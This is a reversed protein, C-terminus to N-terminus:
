PTARECAIWTALQEREAATPRKCASCEDPPMVANKARPGAGALADIEDAAALIGPLTDFNDDSPADHRDGGELTSAHCGTCYTMMFQRGFTEYTPAPEVSSSCTAGTPTGDSAGCAVLFILLFSRM